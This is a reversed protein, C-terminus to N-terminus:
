HGFIDDVHGGSIASHMVYANRKVVYNFGVLIFTVHKHQKPVYAILIHPFQAKYHTFSHGIFMVLQECM